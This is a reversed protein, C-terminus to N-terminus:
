TLVCHKNRRKDISDINHNNIAKRSWNTEKEIKAAIDPM